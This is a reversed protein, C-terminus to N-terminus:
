LNHISYQMPLLNKLWKLIMWTEIFQKLIYVCYTHQKNEM